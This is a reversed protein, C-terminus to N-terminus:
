KTDGFDPKTLDVKITRIARLAMEKGQPSTGYMLLKDNEVDLVWLVLIGNNACSEVLFKPQDQKPKPDEARALGNVSLISAVAALVVVIGAVLFTHKM